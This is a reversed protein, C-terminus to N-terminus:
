SKNKVFPKLLEKEGKSPTGEKVIEKGRTEVRSDRVIKGSSDLTRRNVSEGESTADLDIKKPDGAGTAAKGAGEKDDGGAKPTRNADTKGVSPRQSYYPPVSLAQKTAGPSGKGASKDLERTIPNIGKFAEDLTECAGLVLVAGLAIAFAAPRRAPNDKATM